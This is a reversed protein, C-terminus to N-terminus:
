LLHLALLVTPRLTWRKPLAQCTKRLRKAAPKRSHRFVGFTVLNGVLQYIQLRQNCTTMQVHGEGRSRSSIMYLDHKMYKM